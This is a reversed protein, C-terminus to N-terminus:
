EELVVVNIGATIGTRAEIADLLTQRIEEVEQPPLAVLIRAPTRGSGTNKGGEDEPQHFLAYPVEDTDIGTEVASDGVAVTQGIADGLAGGRVLPDAPFGHREKGTVTSPALGQWPQGFTAGHTSFDEREWDGMEEGIEELTPALGVSSVAEMVAGLDADPIVSVDVEIALTVSPAAM